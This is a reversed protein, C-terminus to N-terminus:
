YRESLMRLINNLFMYMGNEVDIFSEKGKIRNLTNLHTALGVLQGCRINMSGTEKSMPTHKFLSFHVAKYTYFFVHWALEMRTTLHVLEVSLSCLIIPKFRVSAIDCYFYM